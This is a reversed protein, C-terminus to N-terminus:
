FRLLYGGLFVTLVTGLALAPAFPFTRSVWLRPGKARDIWWRRLTEAQEPALGDPGIPGMKHDLLDQDEKLVDLTRPSLIMRPRLEWVQVARFDFVNLYLQYIMWFAILVLVRASIQIVKWFDYEDTPFISVWAIWSLTLVMVPWGVYWRRMLKAFPQFLVFLLFFVLTSDTIDWSEFVLERTLMRLTKIVLFFFLIAFFGRVMDWKHGRIWAIADRWAAAEDPRPRIAQRCLRVVLEVVLVGMVGLFTNFLLVYSPFYPWYANRYTSLPLLAVLAIFLKADGAAWLGFWWLGFALLIALAVNLGVKGAYVWVSSAGLGAVLAEEEASLTPVAEQSIDKLDVDGHTTDPAPFVSAGPTKEWPAPDSVGSALRAAEADAKAQEIAYAKKLVRDEEAGLFHGMEPFRTVDSELGLANWAVYAALLAGAAALGALVAKNYVKGRLADSLAGAGALVLAAAQPISEITV